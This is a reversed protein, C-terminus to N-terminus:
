EGDLKLPKINLKVLAEAVTNVQGSVLANDIDPDSYLISFTAAHEAISRTCYFLIPITYWAIHVVTISSKCPLSLALITDFVKDKQWLQLLIKERQAPILIVRCWYFLISNLFVMSLRISRISFFFKLKSFRVSKQYLDDIAWTYMYVNM